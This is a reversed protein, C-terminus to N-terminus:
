PQGVGSAQVENRARLWELRLREQTVWEEVMQDFREKQVTTLISAARDQARSYFAQSLEIKREAASVADALGSHNIQVVVPYAGGMGGFWTERRLEEVYRQREENLAAVLSSSQYDTLAELSGTRHRLEQIQQLEPIKEQYSQFQQYREVGLHAALEEEHARQQRSTAQRVQDFERQTRQERLMRQRELEQRALVTLLADEQTPDLDLYRGLEPHNARLAVKTTTQLLRGVKPDAQMRRDAEEWKVDRGEAAIVNSDPALNERRSVPESRAPSHAVAPQMASSIATGAAASEELTPRGGAFPNRVSRARLETLEASMEHLRARETELQSWLRLCAMSLGSAVLAFLVILTRM